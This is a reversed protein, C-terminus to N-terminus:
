FVFSEEKAFGPFLPVFADFLIQKHLGNKHKHYLVAHGAVGDRIFTAIRGGEKLQATLSAPIVDVAGNIVIVDFSDASQVDGNTATIFNINNFGFQTANAKAQAIWKGEDAATVKEALSALICSTYGTLCGGDLVHHTPEIAAEQLLRAYAPPEILVRGDGMPLDEGLYAMSKLSDPLFAERPLTAFAEIIRKDIVSFPRIQSDIMNQRVQSFSVTM